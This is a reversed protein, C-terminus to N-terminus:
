TIHLYVEDFFNAATQESEPLLEAILQSRGTTTLPSVISSLMLLVYSMWIWHVGMRSAAAIGGYILTLLVNGHAMMRPRSFRDGLVGAFPNVIAAPVGACLSILGVAAPSHTIDLVMWLVAAYGLENGLGSIVSGLWLNRFHKHRIFISIGEHHVKM